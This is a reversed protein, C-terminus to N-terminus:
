KMWEGQSCFRSELVKTPLAGVGVDSSKLGYHVARPQGAVASDHACPAQFPSSLLASSPFVRTKAAVSLAAENLGALNSPRHPHHFGYSFDHYLCPPLYLIRLTISLDPYLIPVVIM